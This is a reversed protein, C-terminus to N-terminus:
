ITYDFKDLYGLHDHVDKNIKAVSINHYRRYMLINGMNLPLNGIFIVSAAMHDEM